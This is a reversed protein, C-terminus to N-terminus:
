ATKCVADRGLLLLGSASKSLLLRIPHQCQSGGNREPLFSPISNDIDSNYIIWSGSFGNYWQDLIPYSFICTYTGQAM